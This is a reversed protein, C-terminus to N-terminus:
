RLWSLYESQNIRSAVPCLNGATKEQLFRTYYFLKSGPKEKELQNWILKLGNTHSGTSFPCEDEIYDIETILAYATTERESFRCFPKVKCILNGKAELVPAQRQLQDMDWSLNNTFLVAVEDDLNHGTAITTYSHERPFTNFIRRKITGCVSCPRNAGRSSASVLDPIAKGYSAKVDVMHLTLNRQEAFQRTREKSTQSYLADGVIGLDIYLGDM